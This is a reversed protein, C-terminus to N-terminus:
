PKREKLKNKTAQHWEKRMIVTKPVILFDEMEQSNFKSGQCWGTVEEAHRFVMFEELPLTSM